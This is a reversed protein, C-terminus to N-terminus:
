PRGRTPSLADRLRGRADDDLPPQADAAARDDGVHAPAPFPTTEPATPETM